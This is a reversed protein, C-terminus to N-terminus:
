TSIGSNIMNLLRQNDSEVSSINQQQDKELNLQEQKATEVGWLDILSQIYSIDDFFENNKEQRNVFEIEGHTDYWQIADVEPDFQINDIKIFEGDIGISKDSKIYTFRM